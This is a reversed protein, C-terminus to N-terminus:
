KVNSITSERVIKAFIPTALIVWRPGGGFGAHWHDFDLMHGQFNDCTHSYWIYKSRKLRVTRGIRVLRDRHHVFVACLRFLHFFPALLLRFSNLLFTPTLGKVDSIRCWINDKGLITHLMCFFPCRASCVVEVRQRGHIVVQYYSCIKHLLDLTETM